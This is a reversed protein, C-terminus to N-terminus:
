EYLINVSGLDFTDTGGNTTIRVRDLTGSLTKVGAGAFIYGDTRGLQGSMAWINSGLSAITIIGSAVVSAASDPSIAFGNTFAAGKLIGSPSGGFYGGTGSYGTTEIGSATGIQILFANSGNTSVGNYMVTIRKVWSPISTFDINTGSTTNQSTGSVLSTVTGRVTTLNASVNMSNHVTINTNSELTLGASGNTQLQLVGSADASQVLGTTSTTSANIISAM